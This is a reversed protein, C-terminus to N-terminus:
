PQPPKPAAKAANAEAEDIQEMVIKLGPDGPLALSLEQTAARAPAFQHLYLLDRAKIRRARNFRPDAKLAEEASAMSARLQDATQKPQTGYAAVMLQAWGDGAHEKKYREAMKPGREDHELSYYMGIAREMDDAGFPAAKRADNLEKILAAQEEGVKKVREIIKDSTAKLKGVLGDIEAIRARYDAVAHEEDLVKREHLLLTARDSLVSNQDALEAGILSLVLLHGSKAGLYNPPAEVALQRFGTDAADLSAQDDKQATALLATVKGVLEEPPPKPATAFHYGAALVVVTVLAGVVYFLSRSGQSELQASYANMEQTLGRQPPALKPKGLSEPPREGQPHRNPDAPPAQWAPQAGSAPRLPNGGQETREETGDDRLTQSMAGFMQTSAAKPVLPEPEPEAEPKPGSMAGFMM